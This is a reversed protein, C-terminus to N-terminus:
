RVQGHRDGNPALWWNLKISTRSQRSKSRNSSYRVAAAAFPQAAFPGVCDANRGVNRSLLVPRHDHVGHIYYYARVVMGRKGFETLLRRYDVDFDLGKVTQHFNSRDIFLAIRETM